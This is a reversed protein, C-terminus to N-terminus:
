WSTAPFSLHSLFHQWLLYFNRLLVQFDVNTETEKKKELLCVSRLIFSAFNLAWLVMHFVSTVLCSPNDHYSLTATNLLLLNLNISTAMSLTIVNQIFIIVMKFESCIYLLFFCVHWSSKCVHFTCFYLYIM